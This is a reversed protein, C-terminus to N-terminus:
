WRGARAAEAADQAGHAGPVQVRQAGAAPARGHVRRGRAGAARPLAPRLPLPLRLRARGPALPCGLGVERAARLPDAGRSGGRSELEGDQQEIRPFLYLLSSGRLTPERNNLIPYDGLAHLMLSLLDRRLAPAYVDRWEAPLRAVHAAPAARACRRPVEAVFSGAARALELVARALVAVKKFCAKILLRIPYTLTLEKKM